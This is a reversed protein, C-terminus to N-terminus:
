GTDKHRAPVLKPVPMVMEVEDMLPFHDRSEIPWGIYISINGAAGESADLDSLRQGVEGIQTMLEDLTPYPAELM